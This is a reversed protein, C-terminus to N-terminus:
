ITPALKEAKHLMELAPPWRKRRMDIVGLNAYAGAAQPDAALVARFNKEAEDLKNERLAAEGSAFLEQPTGAPAKTKVVGQGQMGGALCLLAALLRIVSTRSVRIM